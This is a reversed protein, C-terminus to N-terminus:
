EAGVSVGTPAYSTVVRWVTEQMMQAAEPGPDAARTGDYLKLAHPLGVPSRGYLVAYHTLAMLYAGHDNFHIDDKYLDARSTIPGIGCQGRLLAPWFESIGIGIPTVM